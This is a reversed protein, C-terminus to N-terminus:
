VGLELHKSRAVNFPRRRRFLTSQTYPEDDFAPNVTQTRVNEVLLLNEYVMNRIETPLDLFGLRKKTESTLWKKIKPMLRKKNKPMAM